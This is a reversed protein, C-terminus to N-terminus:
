RFLLSILQTRRYGVRAEYQGNPIDTSCVAIIHGEADRGVSAIRGTDNGITVTMGPEVNRAASEDEFVVTLVKDEAYATGAAFSEVSAASSWVILGALLLLVAALLAWVSPNTVHLYDEMQEPSSIREISKQRFIRNEM